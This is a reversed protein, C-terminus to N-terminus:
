SSTTHDLHPCPIWMWFTSGHGEGESTVGIHGNCREAINQCISLGLGTGQVFDNLKVFREFVSSQKEKPIGAGTDLCYFILGDAEGSGDAKQRRDWHYGVKIYGNHTYKVANTTFNTLVQQVRGKDLITLCHDYPNDKIFEVGPEQVRQALTQCIDDFVQAFDVESPKIALAQGMSSAELIDNILRMLMDCNNRIIRIFELREEQTDIVPLLDSFGVIANLPTRIEHTMNALFASKMRGSNEARCTEQKLKQQAEMLDTVDRAVGFYSTVNGDENRSPVGSLAYWCPNPNVPLMTFHHIANFDENYQIMRKLIGNAKSREEETMYQIYENVDIFYGPIRLSRSFNIKRSVLDLQWVFMDSKELLYQLQSEYNNIAKNAKEMERSHHHQKLYMTREETVDRSTIVYYQLENNVDFTPCIRLEIYRDLGLDSYHMHQCTHFIDHSNRPYQDKFLPAEFLNTQRFYLENEENFACLQRMNDNLDIFRGDKDYFSMAIINTKFIKLYKTSLESNIREEEVERTIDKLTIVVNAPKKGRGMELTYTGQLWHWEPFTNTGRNLRWTTTQQKEHNLLNRISSRLSDRDDPHINDFLRDQRLGNEPLLNGHVNTCLRTNLDYNVVYYHGMKLAQQMMSNLDASRNVAVLVRSRVLRSLLLGIVVAIVAGALIFIAIPSTNDHIREPHFWKDHIQQLEGSQEMRALEDDIIDILEKDYGVIRIEGDPIDIDTTNLSDIALEKKKWRLPDEGWIFYQYRGDSIGALADKPSRYGIPINLHREKVIRNTAYDNEKLILTDSNRLQSLDTIHRANKGLVLKVKYYNLINTSRIYPRVHYLYNPDIILDAERREFAQTADNWEKLLFQCPIDLKNFITQLLEINYGDPDGSNNSFEYPPFDWDCVILVPNEESYDLSYQAQARSAMICLLVLLNTLYLLYRKNTTM